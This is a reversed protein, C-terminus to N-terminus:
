GSNEKQIKGERDVNAYRLSKQYYILEEQIRRQRGIMDAILALVIFLTGLVVLTVVLYLLSTYPSTRGTIIWHFLMWIGVVLGPLLTAIGITGFFSLPRYDRFYRIIITLASLGYSYWHKVLKSRGKRERVKIPVEKTSIGKNALDLIVEQTYTFEGFTNLRLAAEKSYARFGCQTDTFKQGTLQNVLNTFFKNGIIKIWPLEPEWNKNLFRSAAVFDVGEKSIPEILPLIDKPDFQGDADINVVIDAGMNLAQNIGDRFAVGLGFNTKHSIIEDAGAERAVEVTKDTSGDNIVLVQVSDIGQIKRPVKKIVSAITEEENYAPIMVVLRM